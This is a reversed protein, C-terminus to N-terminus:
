KLTKFFIKKDEKKFNNASIRAKIMNINYEIQGKVPSGLKLAKQYAQLAKEYVNQSFYCFGLARYVREDDRLKLFNKLLLIADGFRELDRLRYSLNLVYNVNEPELEVGKSVYELSKELNKLYTGYYIGVDNYSKAYYPYNKINKLSLKFYTEQKEEVDGVGKLEQYHHIPVLLEMIKGQQKKLSPKITEHVCYDYFINKSRKFLRVISVVYFGKFNEDEIEVFDPHNMFNNTYHLQPLEYAVTAKDYVASKSIIDKIKQHDTRIIIEDADLVLIWDSTAHKLSENRAVSFDDCWEFDFVNDTFKRAIEKTKDTSGTDVIIIEDVLDKVSNLCQELFFEENKTIMCLSITAMILFHSILNILNELFYKFTISGTLIASVVEQAFPVDNSLSAVANM